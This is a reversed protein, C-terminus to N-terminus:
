GYLCNLKVPMYIHANHRNLTQPEGLILLMEEEEQDLAEQLSQSKKSGLQAPSSLYTLDDIHFAGHNPEYSDCVEEDRYVSTKSYGMPKIEENIETISIYRETTDDSATSKEYLERERQEEEEILALLPDSM